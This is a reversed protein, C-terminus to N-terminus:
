LFCEGHADFDRSLLKGPDNRSGDWERRFLYVGFNFPANQLRLLTLYNVAFSKRRSKEGLKILDLM